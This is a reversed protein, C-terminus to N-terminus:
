NTLERLATRDRQLTSSLRVMTEVLAPSFPYVRRFDEPGGQDGFLQNFDKQYKQRFGDFARDVEPRAAESKPKLIRAEIIRALDKDELSIEDFRDKWFMLNDRFIEEDRGVAFHGVMQSLARQRAAFTFLPLALPETGHEILTAV